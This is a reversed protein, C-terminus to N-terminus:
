RRGGNGDLEYREAVSVSPQSTYGPPPQWTTQQEPSLPSVSQGMNVQSDLEPTRAQDPALESVGTAVGGDLEPHSAMHPKGELEPPGTPQYVEPLDGRQKQFQRRKRLSYIGFAVGVVLALFGVGGIVGGIIPGKNSSGSKNSGSSEDEDDSEPASGSGTGTSGTETPISSGTGAGSSATAGAQSISETVTAVVKSAAASCYYGLVELASNVDATATIDCYYKVESTLTSSVGNFIGSKLCVCSALDQPGSGCLWHSQQMWTLVVQRKTPTSPSKGGYYCIIRRKPCM